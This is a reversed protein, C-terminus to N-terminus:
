AETSRNWLGSSGVGQSRGWRWAAPVECSSRTPGGAFTAETSLAKPKQRPVSGRPVRHSYLGLSRDETDVSAKERETCSCCDLSV